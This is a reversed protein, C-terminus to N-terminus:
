THPGIRKLRNYDRVTATGYSSVGRHRMSTGIVSLHEQLLLRSLGKPQWKAIM